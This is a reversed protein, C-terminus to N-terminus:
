RGATVTGFRYNIGARGIDAALKSIVHTNPEGVGNLGTVSASGFRVHLYEAKVSWNGGLALEIGGGATWGTTTKSFGTTESANGGSTDIFNLGYHLDTVALGGTAYILADNMAYGVRPRATFLWNTKVTQTLNFVNAPNSGFPYLAPGQQLNLRFSNYDIEIGIMVPGTQWNFGAQVGGIFVSDSLELTGARNEAAADLPTPSGSIFLLPTHARGGGVNAGIYFGTWATNAKVVPPAKYIPAKVPLDAAFAPAGLLAIFGVLLLKRM